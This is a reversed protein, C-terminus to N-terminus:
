KSLAAEILASIGPPVMAFQSIPPPTRNLHAAAIKPQETEDDFPGCGALMEYLVLATAYLDVKPTAKEGRLQEPAAYRLTGLFRGATERAGSDLVSVIGFDLLKTLTVG